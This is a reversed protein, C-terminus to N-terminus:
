IQCKLKAYTCLTITLFMEIELQGTQQPLLIRRSCRQPIRLVGENDNSGPGSQGPITDGSQAM